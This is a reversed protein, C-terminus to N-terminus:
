RVISVSHANAVDPYWTIYKKLPLKNLWLAMRLQSDKLTVKVKTVSHEAGHTHPHHPSPRTELDPSDLASILDSELEREVRRIADRLSQISLGSAASLPTQPETETPTTSTKALQQLRKQSSIDASEFNRWPSYTSVIKAHRAISPIDHSAGRTAAHDPVTASYALRLM